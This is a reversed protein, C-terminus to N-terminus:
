RLHDKQEVFEYKHRTLVREGDWRYTVLKGGPKAVSYDLCAINSALPEPSGELWYHGLFVPPDEPSYVILHDMDIPDEPIHSAAGPPGFFASRYTTATQDWWRVRIHQRSNGDKDYFSTGQTLPIEKGKLITEIATYAQSGEASADTLLEPNVLRTGRTRDTLYEIAAPDWCAHIVRIEGLDLWLPLTRFWEIIEVYDPTGPPYADLFAQHQGNNKASHARLFSASGPVPTAYAIANFEHNGMVAQAAASEIMPRVIGIVERQRPGRDIFDGLFVAQRDPHRFAGDTRQYGLKQLLATLTESCGHIDGIIDYRM